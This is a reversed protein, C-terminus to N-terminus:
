SSRGSRDLKGSRRKRTILEPKCSATAVAQAIVATLSRLITGPYLQSTRCHSICFAETMSGGADGFKTRM